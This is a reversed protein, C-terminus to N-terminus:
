FIVVVIAAGSRSTHRWSFRGVLLVLDPRATRGLFVLELRALAAIGLAGFALLGRHCQIEFGRELPREALFDLEFLAFLFLQHAHRLGADLLQHSLKHFAVAMGATVQNRKGVLEADIQHRALALDELLGQRVVLQRDKVCIELAPGTLVCGQV